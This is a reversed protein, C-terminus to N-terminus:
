ENCYDGTQIATVGSERIMYEIMAEEDDNFERRNVWKVFDQARFWTLQRKAYRRSERKILEITDDLSMEGDLYSLMQRYGIGQMSVHSKDLGKAKLAKVEELLGEAMMIDVRKDIREYLREREDSIVFFSFEYPSEKKNENLNHESIPSNHLRHFEIARMVRKVNNPHILAAAQPDLEKLIGYLADKGNKEFIENLEERVAASENEDEDNFQTDYVLAKIYFGTGGVVIPICGEHLVEDICETSRNKFERINFPQLPDSIDIMHHKIGQMEGPKIKATGIDMGRYVQMSDASIIQGNIRRALGISLSTKGVGTPGAIVILPKKM